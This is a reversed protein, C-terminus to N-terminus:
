LSKSVITAYKDAMCGGSEEKAGVLNGRECHRHAPSEPCFDVASVAGRLDLRRKVM